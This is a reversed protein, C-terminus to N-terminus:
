RLQHVKRAAHIAGLLAMVLLCALADVPLEDGTKASTTAAKKTTAASSGAADGQQNPTDSEPVVSAAVTFTSSVNFEGTGYDFVAVLEHSGAELANLLDASLVIRTPGWSTTFQGADLLQGDVMLSVLKDNRANTRFALANASGKEHSGHMGEIFQYSYGLGLGREYLIDPSYSITGDEASAMVPINVPLKGAPAINDFFSQIGANINANYAGATGSASSRDTPDIGTGTCMYALAIADADPYRAADYPLNGSLLVFKAGAAHADALVSSVAQYILGNPQLSALNYMKSFCVVSDAQAIAAKAEAPYDITGNGLDYYYGITISTAADPSGSAQGTALNNVYANADVVGTQQLQAIANAIVVNDAKERGVIVIKSDYGSLPLTSDENKVLTIAQQAIAM